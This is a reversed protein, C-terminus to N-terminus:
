SLETYSYFAGGSLLVAGKLSINTYNDNILSLAQGSTMSVKGIYVVGRPGISDSAPIYKMAVEIIPTSLADVKRTAMTPYTGTWTISDGDVVATATPLIMIFGADSDVSYDVGLVLVTASKKVTTVVIKLKGTDLAHGLKVTGTIALDTATGSSQAFAADEGLAALGVNRIGWEPLEIDIDASLGSVAKAVVAKSGVRNTKKEITNVNPTVDLKDIEGVDRWQTLVGGVYRNIYLLGSGVRLNAVNPTLSSM